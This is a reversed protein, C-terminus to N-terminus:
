DKKTQALKWAEDALYEEVEQAAEEVTMLRGEEKYTAEILEVVDKVSGTSKIMEYTEPDTSVLSQTDREIQKLAANYSSTQSEVQNKEFSDLREQMKQM